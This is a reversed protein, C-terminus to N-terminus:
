VEGDGDRDTGFTFIITTGKGPISTMDMQGHLIKVREQMAQLGMGCTTNSEGSIVSDVNFGCGDDYVGIVVDDAIVRASVQISDADAHKVVNNLSEQLLRYLHRQEEVPFYEGVSELHADIKINSYELFGSFLHEFAADVGLHDVVMPWLERSLHRVKEILLNVYHSLEQLEGGIAQSSPKKESYVSNELARLQLKLAALSQGFDDHLEMSIRRREDDQATILMASLNRLREESLILNNEAVKRKAIDRVISGLLREGNELDIIFFSMEVDLYTGNKLMMRLERPAIPTSDQLLQFVEKRVTAQDDPHLSSTLPFIMFDADGTYVLLREAAPNTYIARGKADFLIIMDQSAHTFKSFREESERLSTELKQRRLVDVELADNTLRLKNNMEELHKNKAALEAAM